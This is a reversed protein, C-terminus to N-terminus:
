YEPYKVFRDDQMMKTQIVDVVPNSGHVSVLQDNVEHHQLAEIEPIAYINITVLLSDGDPKASGTDRFTSHQLVGVLGSSARLDHVAHYKLKGYGPFWRLRTMQADFILIFLYSADIKFDIM